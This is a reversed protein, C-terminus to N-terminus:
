LIEIGTAKVKKDRILKSIFYLASDESIKLEKAISDPTLQGKDDILKLIEKEVETVWDEFMALVEPTAFGAMKASTSVSETMRKCMEMSEFEEGSESCCTSDETGCCCNMKDDMMSKGTRCCDGMKEDNETADTNCCQSSNDSKTSDDTNCCGGMKDEKTSEDFSCCDNMMRNRMMKAMPPIMGDMGKPMDEKGGCCNNKGM